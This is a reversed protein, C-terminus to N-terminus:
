FRDIQRAKRFQLSNIRLLFANKGRQWFENAALASQCCFPLLLLATAM